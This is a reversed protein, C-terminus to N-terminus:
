DCVAPWEIQINFTVFSGLCIQFSVAVLDTVLYDFREASDLEIGQIGVLVVVRIFIGVTVVRAIAELLHPGAPQSARM